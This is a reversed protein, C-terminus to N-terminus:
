SEKESLTEFQDKKAAFEKGLLLVVDDLKAARGAIHWAEEASNVVEVGPLAREEPSVLVLRDAVKKVHQVTRDDLEAAGLAVILRRKSLESASEVVHKVSVDYSARDVVVAYPRDGRVYEYNADVHELSAAGEEITNFPIGLVYASAIAAALNYANAKGVLHTAVTLSTHHDITMEVETGKRYLAMKNIRAEATEQEGFTIVQHEAIELLGAQYNDPIVAYNMDGALLVDGEPSESTAIVTDIVVGTLAGSAMFEPTVEVVFFEVADRKAEKLQRQLDSVVDEDTSLKYAAVKRGAENLIARLLLTTTTKGYQGTVAIVRVTSAPNGYRASVVKARGKHYLGRLWGTLGDSTAKEKDGLYEKM